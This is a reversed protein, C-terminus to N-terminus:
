RINTTVEFSLAVALQVRTGVGVKGYVSHLYQRVTSEKLGLNDAIEQNSLGRLVLRAADKERTTLKETL